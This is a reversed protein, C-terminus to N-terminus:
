TDLYTIIVPQRGYLRNLAIIAVWGRDTIDDMGAHFYGNDDAYATGSTGLCVSALVPTSAGYIARLMDAPETPRADFWSSDYIEAGNPSAVADPLPLAITAEPGHCRIFPDVTIDTPVEDIARPEVAAAEVPWHAYVWMGGEGTDRWRPHPLEPWCVYGTNGPQRGM